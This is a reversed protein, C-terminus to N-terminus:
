NLIIKKNKYFEIICNKLNLLENKELKPDIRLIEETENKIIEIMEHYNIDNAIKLEIEGHQQTGLFEGPGRIKLDENAIYFGDNSETLVKIRHLTKINKSDTVLFCYSKHIGRGVRGRLQHLQSLGFRDAGEVVMVAANQVNVGVEIVTTSILIDIEGENFRNFITEKESSKQKGHIMEITFKNYREKLKSHINQVSELDNENEFISPAVFYAQRGELIQKEIFDLMKNYKLINVIHTDIIKRGPPLEDIITIDLDGFVILSLTRPIPTASMVLVDPNKGKNVISARQKVGFRHQEDTIVVGLKDFKVDEQLLSHTGIIFDIEGSSIRSKISDKEKKTQSGLLISVKIDLNGFLESFSKLHQKALVETPVLLATQYCNKYALFMSFFAIITKGSGVDGQVLRNMINGSHMDTKIDMIAKQQANTLKYPLLEKFEDIEGGYNFIIGKKKSNNQKIAALSLQLILLEEFALTIRAKKYQINSTPFHIWKLADKRNILKYKEMLYGPIINEIKEYYKDFFKLFVRRLENNKIGKTLKYIPFYGINASINKANEIEPNIIYLINNYKQIIGYLYVLELNRIKKEIYAQNFWIAKITYGDNICKIEISSKRYYSKSKITDNLFQAKLLQKKGEVLDKIDTIKSRDEFKYPYYNVLDDVSFINLKNLKEVTKIGVGPIEDLKINMYEKLDFLM